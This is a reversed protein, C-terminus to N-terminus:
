AKDESKGLERLRILASFYDLEKIAGIMSVTSGYVVVLLFFLPPDSGRAWPRSFMCPAPPHWEINACQAHPCSATTEQHRTNDALAKRPPKTSGAQTVRVGDEM